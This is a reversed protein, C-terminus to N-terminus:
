CHKISDLAYKSALFHGHVWQVVINGFLSSFIDVFIAFIANLGNRKLIFTFIDGCHQSSNTFALNLKASLKDKLSNSREIFINKNIVIPLPHANDDLLALSLYWSGGKNYLSLEFILCILCFWLLILITLQYIPRKIVSLCHNNM